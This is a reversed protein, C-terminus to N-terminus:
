GKGDVDVIHTCYKQIDINCEQVLHPDAHIDTIGEGIM